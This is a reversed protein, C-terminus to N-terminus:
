FRRGRAAYYYPSPAPAATTYFQYGPPGANAFTAPQIPDQAPRQSRCPSQSHCHPYVPGERLWDRSLESLPPLTHGARLPMHMDYPSASASQVVLPVQPQVQPVSAPHAPRPQHYRLRGKRSISDEEQAPSCSLTYFYLHEPTAYPQRDDRRYASVLTQPVENQGITAAWPSSHGVDVPSAGLSLKSFGQLPELPSASSESSHSSSYELEPIQLTLGMSRKPPRASPPAAPAYPSADSAFAQSASRKTSSSLAISPNVRYDTYAACASPAPGPALGAPCRRPSSSRARYTPTTHAKSLTSSSHRLPHVRHLSRAPRRSRRWHQLEREKAMVLGQLLNLWSDYTSKDVYLGFDIGLLFEKEMKNIESLEIGSVESWTKNTYTNDDVFKNAMMLAAIAVRYESGPHGTTFRNRAKMRYIYHLALVIVSQSVQTTELVKQMFRIFAHSVTFQLSATTSNSPPIYPSHEQPATRNRKSPSSSQSCSSFWLYCIMECTKEAIFQSPRELSVTFWDLASPPSPLYEITHSADTRSTSTHAYARPSRQSPSGYSQWLHSDDLQPPTVPSVRASAYDFHSISPLVPKPETQPPLVRKAFVDSLPPTLPAEQKTTRWDSWTSMLADPLPPLPADMSHSHPTRPLSPPPTYLAM